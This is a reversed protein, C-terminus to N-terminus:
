LEYSCQLFDRGLDENDLATEDIWICDTEVRQYEKGLEGFSV